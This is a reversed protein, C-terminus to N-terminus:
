IGGWSENELYPKISYKANKFGCLFKSIMNNAANMNVFYWSALSDTIYYDPLLAGGGGKGGGGGGSGKGERGGQSTGVTECFEFIIMLEM